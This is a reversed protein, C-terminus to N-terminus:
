LEELETQNSEYHEIATSVLEILGNLPDHDNDTADELLQEVLALAAEYHTNDSINLLPEATKAFRHYSSIVQANSAM